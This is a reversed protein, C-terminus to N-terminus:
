AYTQWLNLGLSWTKGEIADLPPVARGPDRSTSKATADVTGIGDHTDKLRGVGSLIAEAGDIKIRDLRPSTGGM